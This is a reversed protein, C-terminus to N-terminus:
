GLVSCISLPIVYSHLSPSDFPHYSLIYTKPLLIGGTNKPHTNSFPSRPDHVSNNISASERELRLVLLHHNLQVPRALCLWGFGLVRHSLLMERFPLPPPRRAPRDPTCCSGYSHRRLLLHSYMRCPTYNRSCRHGSSLAVVALSEQSYLSCINWEREPTPPTIEDLASYREIINHRSATSLASVNRSRSICPYKSCHRLNLGLFM